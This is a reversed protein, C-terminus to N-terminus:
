FLIVFSRTEHCSYRLFPCQKFIVESNAVSPIWLGNIKVVFEQKGKAATQKMKTELGPINSEIGNGHSSTLEHGSSSEVETGNPFDKSSM